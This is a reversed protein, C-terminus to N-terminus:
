PPVACVFVPVKSAEELTELADSIDLLAQGPSTASLVDKTGFHVVVAESDDATMAVTRKPMQAFRAGPNTWTVSDIVGNNLRAGCGKMNSAGVVTLKVKSPAPHPRHHPPQNNSQQSATSSRRKRPAPTPPTRPTPAVVPTPATRQKVAPQTDRQLKLSEVTALLTNREQTVDLHLDQFKVMERNSHERERVADDREATLNRLEKKQNTSQTKLVKIDEKQKKLQSELKKATERLDAIVSDKSNLELTADVLKSDLDRINNLVTDHSPVTATTDTRQSDQVASVSEADQLDEALDLQLETSEDESDGLIGFDSGSESSDDGKDRQDSSMTDAVNSVSLGDQLELASLRSLSNHPTSARQPTDSPNRGPTFLRSFNTALHQLPSQRETSQVREVEKRAYSDCTKPITEGSANAPAEDVEVSKPITQDLRDKLWPFDNEAWAIFLIIRMM